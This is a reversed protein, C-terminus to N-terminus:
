KEINYFIDAGTDQSSANSQISWNKTLSYKALLISVPNLLGISYSISLRSTLRKGVTLSTAQTPAGNVLYNQSGIGLEDLGFFQQLQETINGVTNGGLNFASAAKLLLQANNGSLKDATQGTLILSLIDSQSYISPDSFLTVTYHQLTGGVNIGVTVNRGASYSTPLSFNQGLSSNSATAAVLITKAATVAIGPNNIPSDTYIIKATKINLTQGYADYSGKQMELTGTATTTTASNLHIHLGGSLKGTLGKMNISIANGLLLNIDGSFVGSPTSSKNKVFQVDDSLSESSAGMEPSNIDATPIEISGNILYQNALKKQITLNPSAYIKYSPTNMVLIKQGILSLNLPLDPTLLAANGKLYLLGAGSNAQGTLSIKGSQNANGTLAIDKITLGMSPILLMGRMLKLQGTLQPKAVTGNLNIEGTLQGAAQQIVPFLKPILSFDHLDFNLHGSLLQMHSFSACIQQSNNKLCFNSLQQKKTGIILNAKQALNWVGAFKNQVTFSNILGQWQTAQWAGALEANLLSGDSDLNIDIRNAALNGQMKITLNKILNNNVQVDNFQLNAYSDLPTIKGESNLAGYSDSFFDHFNKIHIAWTLNWTKNLGGQANITSNESQIQLQKINFGQPFFSADLDATFPKEAFNGHIQDTKIFGLWNDSHKVNFVFGGANITAKTTEHQIQINKWTLKGILNQTLLLHWPKITLKLDQIKLYISDSQYTLTQISVTDALCGSINEAVLDTGSIKKLAVLSWTLGTPTYLVFGLGLLVLTLLFIFTKLVRGLYKMM